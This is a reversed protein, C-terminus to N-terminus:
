YHFWRSGAFVSPQYHGSWVSSTRHCTIGVIDHPIWEIRQDIHVPIEVQMNNPLKAAATCHRSRSAETTAFQLPNALRVFRVTIAMNMMGINCLLQELGFPHWLM